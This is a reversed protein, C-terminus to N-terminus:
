KKFLKASQHRSEEPTLLRKGDAPSVSMAMARSVILATTWRSWTAISAWRDPLELVDPRSHRWNISSSLQMITARSWKQDALYSCQAQSHFLSISYNLSELRATVEILWLTKRRQYLLEVFGPDCMVESSQSSLSMVTTSSTAGDHIKMVNHNCTVHGSATAWGCKPYDLQTVAERQSPSM